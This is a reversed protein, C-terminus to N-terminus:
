YSVTTYLTMKTSLRLSVCLRVRECLVGGERVVCVCVCMCAGCVCVCVHERMYRCEVSVCM